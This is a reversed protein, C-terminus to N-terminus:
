PRISPSDLARNATQEDARASVRAVVWGGFEAIRKLRAGTARPAGSDHEAVRHDHLTRYEDRPVVVYDAATDTITGAPLPDIRRNGYYALRRAVRGDAAVRRQDNIVRGVFRGTERIAWRELLLSESTQPTARWMGFAIGLAVACAPIAILRRTHELALLAIASALMITAVLAGAGAGTVAWSATALGLWLLVFRFSESRWWTSRMSGLGVLVVPVLPLLQIAAKRPRILTPDLYALRGYGAPLLPLGADRGFALWGFGLLVAAVAATTAVITGASRATLGQLARLWLLALVPLWVADLGAIAVAVGCAAGALVAASRTRAMERMALLATAMAVLFFPEGGLGIGLIQRASPVALMILATAIGVRPAFLQRGLLIMVGIAAAGALMGPLRLQLERNGVLRPTGAVLSLTATTWPGHTDTSIAEAGRRLRQLDIALAAEREDLPRRSPEMRALILLACFPLLLAALSLRVRSRQHPSRVPRLRHRV